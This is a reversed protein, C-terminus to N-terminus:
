FFEGDFGKGGDFKEVWELLKEKEVDEEDRLDDELRDDDFEDGSDRFVEELVEEVNLSAAM